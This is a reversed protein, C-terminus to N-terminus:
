NTMLRSCEAYPEKLRHSPPHDGNTDYWSYATQSINGNNYYERTELLHLPVNIKKSDFKGGTRVKNPGTRKNIKVLYVM